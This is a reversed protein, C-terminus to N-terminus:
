LKSTIDRAREIEVVYRRVSLGSSVKNKDAFQDRITVVEGSRLRIPEGIPVGAAIMADLAQDAAKYGAKGAELARIHQEALLAFNTKKQTATKLKIEPM